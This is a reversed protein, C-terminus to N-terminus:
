PRLEFLLLITSQWLSENDDSVLAVLLRGAHRLVAIGEFNDVPLPVALRLLEEGQLVQGAAPEALDAASLLVVRSAFGGFVSFSRELVLAGGDPLGAADVPVHGLAPQYGLDLWGEPGGIWGARGDRFALGESLVLWRGDALVALSELSGNAPSREIGPPAPVHRGPGDLEAYARIRHWREFGVLWTGDPLRALAEADGTYGPRLPRGTGDGLWGTRLLSLRLPRLDEALDLRMEAFRTRDSIATLTLDPALHLGSLGGFGLVGTNLVFGGLARMRGNAPFASLDLARALGPGEAAVCAPM